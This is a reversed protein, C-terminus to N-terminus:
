FWLSNFRKAENVKNGAACLDRRSLACVRTVANPVVLSRIADGSPYLMRGVNRKMPMAGILIILRSGRQDSCQKPALPISKPHM